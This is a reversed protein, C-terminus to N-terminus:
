GLRELRTLRDEMTRLQGRLSNNDAILVATLKDYAVSLFGEEDTRVLEPLVKQVHQAIVGIQQKANMMFRFGGLKAIIDSANLLPEINSKLREDSPSTIDGTVTLNGSMSVDPIIQLASTDSHMAIYMVPRATLDAKTSYLTFNGSVEAIWQAYGGASGLFKLGKGNTNIALDSGSITILGGRAQLDLYGSANVAARAQFDLGDATPAHFDIYSGVEMGGDSAAIRPVAAPIQGIPIVGAVLDAKTALSGTLAAVARGDTFYLNTGGEALADTSGPSSVIRIYTSGSWRYEFNTDLTVYIKGAEGPGPLLAFSGVEIVDDVYSPLFTASIKATGDLPCVGNAIGKQTADVKTNAWGAITGATVGGVQTVHMTSDADVTVDGYNAPALGSGGGAGTEDFGFVLGTEDHKVKIVKDANGTVVLNSLAALIPSTVQYNSLESTIYTVLDTQNTITGIIQGWTAEQFDVGANILAAVANISALNTILTQIDPMGDAVALVKAYAEGLYKEILGSPSGGGCGPAMGPSFPFGSM